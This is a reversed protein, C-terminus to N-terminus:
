TLTVATYFVFIPSQGGKILVTKAARRLANSHSHTQRQVISSLRGSKNLKAASSCCNCCDEALAIAAHLSRMAAFRM